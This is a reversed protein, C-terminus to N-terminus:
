KVDEKTDFEIGMVELTKRRFEVDEDSLNELFEVKRKIADPKLLKQFLRVLWIVPLLYPAKYLVPYSRRVYSLPPFLTQVFLKARSNKASQATIIGMVEWYYRRNKASGFTGGSFIYDTILEATADTKENEFWVALLRKMNRYFQLLKLKELENELYLEDMNPFARRYVYLDLVHRCGIGGIRYHRAFHAFIFVFEDEASLRYMRGEGPQALQWGTGYYAHYRSLPQVIYQHLELHLAESDWTYVQEDVNTLQYGLSEMIATIRGYQEQRILIDADGMTRMEAKPYLSKLNVGKLPMYDIGQEEFACFLQSLARMQKEHYVLLKYYSLFLQRMTESESDVGCNYAGQYVLAQLSQKKALDITEKLDFGAPLPLAEGTVASKLLTVIGQQTTNM